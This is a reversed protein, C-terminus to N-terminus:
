EATDKDAEKSKKVPKLEQVLAKLEAVSSKLDEIESFLQRVFTRNDREAKARAAAANHSLQESETPGSYKNPEMNM